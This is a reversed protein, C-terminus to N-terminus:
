LNNTNCHLRSQADARLLPGCQEVPVVLVLRVHLGDDILYMCLPSEDEHASQTQVHVYVHVTQIYMHLKGSSMIHM